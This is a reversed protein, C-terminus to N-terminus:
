KKIERIDSTMFNAIRKKILWKGDTKIYSDKYRVGYVHMMEKDKSKGILTVQCYNIGEAKEGSIQM